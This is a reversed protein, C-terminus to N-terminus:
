SSVVVRSVARPPIYSVMNFKLRRHFPNNINRVHGKGPEVPEGPAEQRIYMPYEDHTRMAPMQGRRRVYRM